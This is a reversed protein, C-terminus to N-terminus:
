LPFAVRVGVMSTPDLWGVELGFSASRGLVGFGFAAHLRLSDDDDFVIWPGVLGEAYVRGSRFRLRGDVAAGVRGPEALLLGGFRVGATVHKALRTDTALTLQFAGSEPDVLWDAGLGLATSAAARPPAALLALAAAALVPRLM